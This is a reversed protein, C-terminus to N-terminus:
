DAPSFDAISISFEDDVADPLADIAITLPFGFAPDWTATMTAEPGLSRLQAFVGDITLPFGELFRQDPAAGDFTVETM